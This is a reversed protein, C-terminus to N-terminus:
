GAGFHACLFWGSLMSAVMFLGGIRSLQQETRITFHTRIRTMAAGKKKLSAKCTPHRRDSELRNREDRDDRLLDPAPEMEEWPCVGDMEERLECNRPSYAGCFECLKTM